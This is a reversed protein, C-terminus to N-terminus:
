PHFYGLTPRQGILCRFMDIAAKYIRSVRDFSDCARELNSACKQRNVRLFPARITSSRATECRSDPHHISFLGNPSSMGSYLESKTFHSNGLSSNVPIHPPPM